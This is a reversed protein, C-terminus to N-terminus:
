RYKMRNDNYDDQKDLYVSGYAQIGDRSYLVVRERTGTWGGVGACVGGQLYPSADRGGLVKHPADWDKFMYVRFQQYAGLM